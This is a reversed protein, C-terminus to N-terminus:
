RRPPPTALSPVYISYLRVQQLLVMTKTSSQIHHSWLCRLVEKDITPAWIYQHVQGDITSGSILYCKHHSWQYHPVAEEERKPWPDTWLPQALQSSQLRINGSSNRTLESGQHTGVRHRSLMTLGSQSQQAM